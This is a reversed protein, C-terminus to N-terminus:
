SRLKRDLVRLNNIAGRGLATTDQLVAEGRNLRALESRKVLYGTIRVVDADSAYLSLYRVGSAFAGRIVDLIQQPNNKATPEFAFVDGIGSPFYAHFPASRVLHEMLEPEDGIPIRCGPSVGVDSDIGVQAHLQYRGGFAELHPARHARVAADIRRIIELGFADAADDHGFVTGGANNGFHRNVCEALGVIGFMGTFRSFELLGERLLFSSEFFGSRTVRFGVRVDMLALMAAVADPLARTMLDDRDRATEALRALNLRVLTTSGGRVPLGNYCSAIAYREYGASSFEGAFRPHHAFSPKATSLSTLVAELAFDEPTTDPDYKLTMNPVANSATRQHRLIIRGAESAAPGLNAHCFSDNLTRDIHDLFHGIIEEARPEAAVFPELLADIDGIWVPFNTISPVHHYLALLAHTADLLTRPPSIRLFESGQQMFREYDPIIYRPRWPAHGEFLDCIVGRSLLERAADPIPLVDLTAEADRALAHVKQQYSLERDCITDLISHM